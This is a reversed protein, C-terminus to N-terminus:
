QNCILNVQKPVSKNDNERLGVDIDRSILKISSDGISKVGKNYFEITKSYEGIIERLDNLQAM